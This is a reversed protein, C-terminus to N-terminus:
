RSSGHVLLELEQAMSAIDDASTNTADASSRTENAAGAVVAIQEAIARSGGAAGSIDRSVVTATATQQEAAAAIAASIDQIRGITHGIRENADVAGAAETRIAEIRGAVEETARATATALDKVENAVVAFGKGSEGARAAEITANLALLNTQRAIASITEVVDSIEATAADLRAITASSAQAEDVAESAVSSADVARAAVERFSAELESMATAVSDVSSSVQEGAASAAMAQSSTREASSGVASSVANLSRAAAGAREAVGAVPRAVGRALWQAVAAIALLSLIGFGAITNRLGDAGTVAAGRDQHILIGWDYGDFGLAGDTRAYGVLEATGSESTEEVYGAGSEGVLAAAESGAAVLDTVLPESPTSSDLVVGDATLVQYEVGQVGGAELDDRTVQMIDTVIREFSAANKWVGVMVGDDDFVPASYPLTIRDDGYVAQVLPDREADTYLTGGDPTDGGAITQFWAQDSVDTGALAATDLPEGAGDISNVAVIRGDLDAVVMLDYIGYTATLFDIIEQAEEPSGQIKPNAAFAQVDGYREFLNRDVIDGATVAAVEVRSGAGDLLTQRAEGLSIWGIIAFPVIGM